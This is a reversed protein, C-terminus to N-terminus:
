DAVVIEVELSVERHSYDGEDDFTAEDDLRLTETTGPEWLDAAAMIQTGVPLDGDPDIELDIPDDVTAASLALVAAPGKEMTATGNFDCDAPTTEDTITVRGCLSIAGAVLTGDPQEIGVGISGVSCDGDGEAEITRTTTCDGWTDILTEHYVFPGIELGRAWLDGPEDDDGDLDDVDDLDLRGPGPLGCGTAAVSSLALAAALLRLTKM